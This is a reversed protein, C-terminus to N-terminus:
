GVVKPSSVICLWGGGVKDAYLEDGPQGYEIGFEHPSKFRNSLTNNMASYELKGPAGPRNVQNALRDPKRIM